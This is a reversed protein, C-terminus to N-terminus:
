SVIVYCKKHHYMVCGVMLICRSGVILRPSQVGGPVLSGGGGRENQECIYLRHMYVKGVSNVSLVLSSYIHVFFVFWINLFSSSFLGFVPFLVWAHM